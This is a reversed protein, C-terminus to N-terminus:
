QEINTQRMGKIQIYKMINKDASPFIQQDEWKQSLSQLSKIIVSKNQSYCYTIDAVIIYFLSLNKSWSSMLKIPILEKSNLDNKYDQLNLEIPFVQHDLCSNTGWWALRKDITLVISSRLGARVQLFSNISDISKSKVFILQPNSRYKTDGVGLQGFRNNGWSFIKGLATLCITHKLGCSVQKIKEGFKKFSSILQPSKRFLRDGHGLEGSTNQGSSFLTGQISLFMTFHGGCSIQSIQVPFRIREFDISKKYNYHLVDGDTLLYFFQNSIAQQDIQSIQQSKQPDIKSIEYLYIDEFFPIEFQSNDGWCYMDKLQNQIFLQNNAKFISNIKDIKCKIVKKPPNFQEETQYSINNQTNLTQTSIQEPPEQNQFLGAQKRLSNYLSNNSNNQNMKLKQQSNNYQDQPSYSSQFKKQSNQQYNQTELQVFLPNNQLVSPILDNQLKKQPTSYLQAQYNPIQRQLNPSEYINSTNKTQQQYRNSSQSIKSQLPQDNLFKDPSYYIQQDTTHVQHNLFEDGFTYCVSNDGVITTYSDGIFIKLISSNSQELESQIDQYHQAWIQSTYIEHSQPQQDFDLLITNLKIVDVSMRKAQLQSQVQKKRSESNFDYLIHDKELGLDHYYYEQIKPQNNSTFENVQTQYQDNDKLTIQMQIKGFQNQMLINQDIGNLCDDLKINIENIPSQKQIEQKEAGGLKISSKLIKLQQDLGLDEFEQISQQQSVKASSLVISKQSKIKQKLAALKALSDQRDLNKQKKQLYEIKKQARQLSLVTHQEYFQNKLEQFKLNKVLNKKYPIGLIVLNQQNLMEDRKVSNWDYKVWKETLFYKQNLWSRVHMQIFKTNKKILQFLASCWKKRFYAQIRYAANRYRKMSLYFNRYRWYRQIKQIAKRELIVNKAERSQKVIGYNNIKALFMRVLSQIKIASINRIKLWSKDLSQSIVMIVKKCMEIQRQQLNKKYWKQIQLISKLKKKYISREKLMLFKSKIFEKIGKLKQKYYEKKKYMIYARQIMLAARIEKMRKKLIFNRIMKQIKKASINQKAELEKAKRMGRIKAVVDSKLYRFRYILGKLFQKVKKRNKLWKKLKYNRFLKQILKVNRNIEEKTQILKSTLIMLASEKIFIMSNGFLINNQELQKQDVNMEVLKQSLRQYDTIKQFMTTVDAKIENFNPPYLEWHDKYFRFYDARYVYGQKRVRITELVGLCNIQNLSYRPQIFGAKKSANPKICRVFQCECSSLEEMLKKMQLRFKSGLFKDTVRSGVQQTNFDTIGLQIISKITKQQALNQLALSVEDKNKARFNTINYEISGTSHHITFNTKQIQSFSVHQSNSKHEREMQSILNLDSGTSLNSSDDILNFVGIPDKPKDLAEIISKNDTYKIEMLYKELGQQKFINREGEYIYSIYLQQLKENAFNICLQEFSNNEFVEFGFIDLIEIQRKKGQTISQRKQQPAFAHLTYQDVEDQDMISQNLRFVIWNFLKEYLFKSYSDRNDISEKISLPSTTVNNNVQRKKTTLADNLEKETCQLKKCITEVTQKQKPSITCSDGTTKVEEFDLNGLLLVCSVINWIGKQEIETFNLDDLSSMVELFLQEDSLTDVNSCESKLYRYSSIDPSLGLQSLFQPEAGKLLHYFIHYNREQQSIQVIRSKELLYNTLSASSIVLKKQKQKISFSSGIDEKLHLIVLKGFRSSNDNRTTKANGFAELIPNCNLIRQEISVTSKLTQRSKLNLYSERLNTLTQPTNQQQFQANMQTLFKMAYKTNETKGAGSEGSIVIAQKLTKEQLISQMCYAAIGFIHPQESYIDQNQIVKEQYLEQTKENFLHDMRKYPNVVVLTPGVYSFIKDQVYRQAIAKLLEPENLFPLNVLDNISSYDGDEKDYRPELFINDVVILNQNGGQQIQLNSPKAQNAQKENLLSLISPSPQDLLQILSKNKDIVSIVVSEVFAPADAQKSTNKLGEKLSYWVPAGEEFQMM